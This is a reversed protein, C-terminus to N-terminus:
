FLVCSCVKLTTASWHRKQIVEELRLVDVFYLFVIANGLLFRKLNKFSAFINSKTCKFRKEIQFSWM